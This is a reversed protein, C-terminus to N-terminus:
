FFLIIPSYILAGDSGTFGCLYRINEPQCFVLADLDLRALLEIAKQRRHSYSMTSARAFVRPIALSFNRGVLGPTKEPDFAYM